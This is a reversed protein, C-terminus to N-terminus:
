GFGTLLVKPSGDPRDDGDRDAYFLLYPPQAVFVGGYGLAMGSALNLDTVFDRVVDSRGDGDTYEYISIRDKGKPGGPPPEPLRDYKTRLYQDVAVPKLGNPSPYQRYQLVWMRGRDDFCISLPQAVQPEAAVLKIELGDAVKLSKLEEEPSLPPPHDPPSETIQSRSNVTVCFLTVLLVVLM